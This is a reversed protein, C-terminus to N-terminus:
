PLVGQTPPTLTPPALLPTFDAGLCSFASGTASEDVEGVLGVRGFGQRTARRPKLRWRGTSPLFWGIRDEGSRCSRPGVFVGSKAVELKLRSISCKYSRSNALRPPEVFDAQAQPSWPDHSRRALRHSRASGARSRELSLASERLRTRSEGWSVCAHGRCM